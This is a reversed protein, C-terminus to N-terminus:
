SSRESRHGPDAVADLEALTDEDYAFVYGKLDDGSLEAASGTRQGVDMLSRAQEIARVMAEHDVRAYTDATTTIHAHGLLEQAQKLGSTEVVARAVTHRFMHANVNAGLKSGIHRLASEFASYTLPKGRGRRLGVWAAQSGLEGRENDLYGRYLPWFDDTIPVRHEDRAGKLRVVITSSAEDLDTVRMGLVGHGGDGGCWDGIRQGTRYLLTLLAKDRASVATEIIKEALQPGLDRPLTQPTRMRFEARRRRRPADRGTMGHVHSDLAVGVPNPRESWTAGTSSSNILYAFFSTLVSVRHNITAPKREPTPYSKRTLANVQGARELSPRVAGGKIGVRFHDIYSEIVVRTVDELEIDNAKLWSSFDHLAIGYSRITYPSRGRRELYFLFADIQEQADSQTM